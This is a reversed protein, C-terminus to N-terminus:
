RASKEGKVAVVVTYPTAVHALWHLPPFVAIAHLILRKVRGPSATRLLDFRDLCSFGLNGLDRRLGFFTFWNVAPYQAFNALEPRTTTALREYRRKLWAPYWSYMRLSFEYQVPCLKNSTTIYLIGSPRLIRACENLCLRWEAVHELLEPLVCVDM